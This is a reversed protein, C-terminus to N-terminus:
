CAGAGAAGRVSLSTMASRQPTRGRAHGDVPLPPALLRGVPHLERALVDDLDVVGARVEADEAALQGVAEVDALLDRVVHAREADVSGYGSARQYPSGGSSRARSNKCWASSM